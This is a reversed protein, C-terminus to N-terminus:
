EKYYLLLRELRSLLLAAVKINNCLQLTLPTSCYGQIVTPLVKHTISFYLFQTLTYM